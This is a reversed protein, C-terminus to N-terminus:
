SVNHVVKHCTADTPTAGVEACYVSSQVDLASRIVQFPARQWLLKKMIQKPQCLPSPYIRAGKKKKAIVEVKIDIKRALISMLILCTSATFMNTSM